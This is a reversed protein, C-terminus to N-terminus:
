GVIAALMARTGLRQRPLPKCLGPEVLVRSGGMVYAAVNWANGVAWPINRPGIVEFLISYVALYLAIEGATPPRDDLRLKLWRQM